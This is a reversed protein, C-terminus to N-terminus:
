KTISDRGDIVGRGRMATSSPQPEAQRVRPAVWIPRYSPMSGWCLKGFPGHSKGPKPIGPRTIRWTNRLGRGLKGRVEPDLSAVHWIIEALGQTTENRVLFVLDGFEEETHGTCTTIVPRGSALYEMMKGTFFYKRNVGETIRMNVPVEPNKYLHLVESFSLFGLYEIRSDNGAAERVQREPPGGGAIRLRHYQDKWYRFHKSCRQFEM